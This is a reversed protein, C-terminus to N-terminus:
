VKRTSSHFRMELASYTTSAFISRTDNVFSVRKKIYTDRLCVLLADFINIEGPVHVRARLVGLDARVEGEGIM